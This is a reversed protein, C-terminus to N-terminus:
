DKKKKSEDCKEEGCDPRIEGRRLRRLVPGEFADEGHQVFCRLVEM